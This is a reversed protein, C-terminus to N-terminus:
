AGLDKSYSPADGVEPKVLVLHVVERPTGVALLFALVLHAM